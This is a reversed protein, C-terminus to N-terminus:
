ATFDIALPGRTGWEVSCSSAGVKGACTAMPEPTSHGGVATLARDNKLLSRADVNGKALRKVLSKLVRGKPVAVTVTKDSTKRM